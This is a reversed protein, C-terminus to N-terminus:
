DQDLASRILHALRGLQLPKDVLWPMPGLVAEWEFGGPRAGAVLIIPLEPRHARGARALTIGDVPPKMAIDSILLDIAMGPERLLTLAADGDPVAIVHYGLLDLQQTMTTLLVPEDDVLLITEDGRPLPAATGDAVAAPLEEVAPLYLEFTAGRGASSRATVAGGASHMFGFVQSLGLGTGRGREKTTFYPEFIRDLVDPAMGVGSDRVTIVIYPGPGPLSLGAADEIERRQTAIILRGGQPMADRANLVLNMLTDQLGGPDIRALCPHPALDLALAVSAPLTPAILDGMAAIIPNCDIVESSLGQPRSFGLLKATLDAGRLAAALAADLRAAVTSALQTTKATLELNGVVVGLLNNFDHAIGGTLQGIAQLRRAHQAQADALKRATIDGAMGEIEILRGYDDFVGHGRILLWATSGDPQPVPHEIVQEQATWVIDRLLRGPAPPPATGDPGFAATLKDRLAGHRAAARGLISLQGSAPHFSWVLEDLAGVVSALRNQARLANARMRRVRDQSLWSWWAALALAITTLIAVALGRYLQRDWHKALLPALDTAVVVHLPFGPVAEVARIVQRGTHDDAFVGDDDGSWTERESRHPYDDGRDPWQAILAGDDRWLAITHGSGPLLRAYLGTLSTIPLTAAIIGPFTRVDPDLRRSMVFGAAVRGGNLRLRTTAAIHARDETSAAPGTFAESTSLDATPAAPAHSAHRVVGQGDTVIISAIGPESSIRRALIDHLRPAGPTGAAPLVAIDRVLGALMQDVQGLTEATQLALTAAIADNRATTEAILARREDFVDGVVVGWVLVILLITRWPVRSM